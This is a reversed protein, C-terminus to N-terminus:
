KPPVLRKLEEAWNLVVHMAAVPKDTSEAPRLLLFRKGDPSIDWSREPTTSDYEGAKAEFLLRPTDVRFPSVSRITTSFFQQRDPTYSRYLLERGNGAWIPSTGGSTSVRTKEGPGPYPQVYVEASGSENTVYAMWHGDPSLQPFWLAFRSEIFLHPKRDGKIPLVWIGNAGSTRRLFAIMDTAPAWSSPLGPDDLREPKGSGDSNIM